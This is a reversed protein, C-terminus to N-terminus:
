FIMGVKLKIDSLKFINKLNEDYNVWIGFWVLKYKNIDCGLLM